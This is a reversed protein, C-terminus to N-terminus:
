VLPHYLKAIQTSDDQQKPDRRTHDEIIVDRVDQLSERLIYLQLDYKIELESVLTNLIAIETKRQNIILLYHVGLYVVACGLLLLLLVCLAIIWFYVVVM